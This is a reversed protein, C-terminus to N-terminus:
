LVCKLIKILICLVLSTALFPHLPDNPHSSPALLLLQGRLKALISSSIEKLDILIPTTFPYHCIKLSTSPTTSANENIGGVQIAKAVGRYPYWVAWSNAFQYRNPFQIYRDAFGRQKQHFEISAKETPLNLSNVGM